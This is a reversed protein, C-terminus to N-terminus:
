LGRLHAVRQKFLQWAKEGSEGTVENIDDGVFPRPCWKGTVDFHRVINTMPINYKNALQAILKAGSALVTDTFYWDTDSVSGTSTNQKHEVLDVGISNRNRAACKPITNAGVGCHWAARYESVMQFVGDDGVLYHTSVSRKWHHMKRAMHTARGQISPTGTYHVVIWEIANHERSGYRSQMKYTKGNLFTRKKITLHCNINM